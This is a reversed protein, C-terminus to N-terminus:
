DPGSLPRLLDGPRGELPLGVPTLDGTALIAAVKFHEALRRAVELGLPNSHIDSIHLIRVEDGGVPGGAQSSAVSYLEAVQDGLVQVRKRVVAIDDVHHRVTALLAPGRELPGEFRDHEFAEAGDGGWAGGRLVTM